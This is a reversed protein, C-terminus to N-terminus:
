ARTVAGGSVKAWHTDGVWRAAPDAGLMSHILAITDLKALNM